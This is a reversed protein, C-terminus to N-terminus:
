AQAAARRRRVLGLAAMGGFILAGALIEEGLFPKGTVAVTAGAIASPCTKEAAFTGDGTLSANITGAATTGTQVDGSPPLVWEGSSANYVLVTEGATVGSAAYSITVPPSLVGAYTQSTSPDIFSV